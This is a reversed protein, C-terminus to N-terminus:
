GQFWARWGMGGVAREFRNLPKQIEIGGRTNAQDCFLITMERRSGRVDTLETLDLLGAVIARIWTNVL